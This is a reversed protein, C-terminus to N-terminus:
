YSQTNIVRWQNNVREVDAFELDGTLVIDIANPCAIGNNLIAHALTIDASLNGNKMRRQLRPYKGSYQIDNATDTGPHDITVYGAHSYDYNNVDTLFISSGSFIAEVEINSRLGDFLVNNGTIKFPNNLNNNIIHFSGQRFLMYFTSPLPTRYFRQFGAMRIPYTTTDPNNDANTDFAILAPRDIPVALGNDIRIVDGDVFTAVSLSATLIVSTPNISSNVVVASKEPVDYVDKLNDINANNAVYSILNRSASMDENIADFIDVHTTNSYLCNTANFFSSQKCGLITLFNSDTAWIIDSNNVKLNTINRFWGNTVGVLELNESNEGVYVDLCNKAVIKSATFKLDGAVGLTGAIRLRECNNIDSNSVNGIISHRVSGLELGGSLAPNDLATTSLTEYCSNFYSNGTVEINSCRNFTNSGDEMNWPLLDILGASVPNVILPNIKINRCDGGNPSNDFTLIDDFDASFEPADPDSIIYLNLSTDRGRRFRVNRWDYHAELKKIVDVRRTIKEGLTPHFFDMEIIDSSYQLSDVMSHVRNTSIARAYLTETTPSTEISGNLLYKTNFPFEYYTGVQLGNGAMLTKLATVSAVQIVTTQIIGGILFADTGDLIISLFQGATFENAIFGSGATKQLAFNGVGPISIEIDGFANTNGLKIHIEEGIAPAPRGTLDLTYVSTNGGSTSHTTPYVSLVDSGDGEIVEVTGNPLKKSLRGTALDMFITVKGAPPNLIAAANTEKVTLLSM